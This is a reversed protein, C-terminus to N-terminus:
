AEGKAWKEEKGMMLVQPLPLAAEFSHLVSVRSGQQAQIQM